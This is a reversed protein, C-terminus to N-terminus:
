FKSTVKVRFTRGDQPIADQLHDAAGPHSYKADFLNYISGSIEFGRILKRSLVTTNVTVFDDISNGALTRASGHYQFELSGYLKDQYAPVSLNLKGLNRPSNSLWERSDKNVTTQFSYSGRALIGRAYRGEVAVEFGTANARSLNDFFVLGDPDTTQSILDNIRYHYASVSLRHDSQLYQEYVLESTRITEPRLDPNTRASGPAEYVTEFDNPARFAEGYLLKFTGKEWPNYILGFRPNLTAGFSSFHDLRLGANLMVDRSAVFELQGYIGINRSNHDSRFYDYPLNDDFNRQFQKINERYETGVIFTHREAVMGTLQFDAGLWQGKTDDKNLVAEEGPAYPTPFTGNYPYHDYSFRGTLRLGNGFGRDYKLDAYARGDTMQERGDNFATGFSATPINKYRNSFAGSITFERYHVNGYITSAREDDSHEALGDNAARPDDSIRQDFEPYYLSEWGRSTHVSGGIMIDAGSDLRRGYSFRGKYTNPSGADVSVEAGDLRSGRKTIINIVGLFASNGYISSSPGRIIEVRDILDIDLVAETGIYAADFINDNIRHGDILLLSRTNYDGPRAFGRIGLYSYNRDNSIYLGPLSRLVDALSRHGFRKIEEATVISVSAPAQTVKQEYRSASYVREVQLTMLEALGLGGLDDQSSVNGPAQSGALLAVPTSLACLCTMIARMM